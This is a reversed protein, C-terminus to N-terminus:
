NPCPFARLLAETAVRAANADRTEPHAEAFAQIAQRSAGLADTVPLCIAYGQIQLLRQAALGAAFGGIFISCARDGHSGPPSECAAILDATTLESAPARSTWFCAMAIAAAPLNITRAV